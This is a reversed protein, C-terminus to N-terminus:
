VLEVVRAGPVPGDARRVSRCIGRGALAAALGAAQDEGRALFAVTPGSGSVIGGLAGLERGTDLLQRLASGRAGRELREEGVHL